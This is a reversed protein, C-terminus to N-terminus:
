ISLKLLKGLTVYGSAVRVPTLLTQNLAMLSGVPECTDQSAEESELNFHEWEEGRWM